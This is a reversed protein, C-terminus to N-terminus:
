SHETEHDDLSLAPDITPVDQIEPDSKSISFADTIVISKIEQKITKDCDVDSDSEVDFTKDKGKSKYSKSAKADSFSLFTGASETEKKSSHKTFDLDTYDDDQVELKIKAEKIQRQQIDQILESFQPQHQKAYSRQEAEIESPNSKKHVQIPKTFSNLREELEQKELELILESVPKPTLSDCNANYLTLFNKHRRILTQRDGSTSLGHEKLKKRIEKDSLLHYVLKPLTKRESYGETRKLCSDLHINIRDQLVLKYCVPCAVENDKCDDEKADDPCLDSKSPENEIEVSILKVPKLYEPQSKTESLVTETLLEKIKMYTRLVEDILRNNRLEPESADQFCIPCQAKVTMYRRICISCYNHSCKTIMCNNFYEFCIRCRLAEDLPKLYKNNMESQLLETADKLSQFNSISDYKSAM